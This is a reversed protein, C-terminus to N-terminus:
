STLRNVLEVMEEVASPAFWNFMTDKKFWTMQRKAYHRTNTKIQEVAQPLSLKGDLHEFLESYGVTQLANLHKFPVLVMAEQLQGQEMMSDVRANIRTNLEPRPLELALKIIQFPRVAKRGQQYTRISEGTAQKVELARILRQPNQIEGSAYYLPDQEQVQQQLWALGNQEYATTITQRIELSVPPVDDLGDCFAKIYLGTGGTMVALDSQKFIDDAAQLAYQEFVAANVDDHVSHSNIFYHPVQQLESASPKAVGITM